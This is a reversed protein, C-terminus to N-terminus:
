EADFRFYFHTDDEKVKKLGLRTILRMSPLNQKFCRSRIYKAKLVDKVYDKLASASEYAYGKGQYEKFFRFGIELGGFYDFNYLVLEGAMKGDVRVALSYEEKREKLLKQFAIFKEPTPAGKIDERYDYGWYRNLADDTYLRFYDQGDSKEIENIVLRETLINVPTIIRDFLTKVTIINKEKIEVPHYQLKSIRLGEDGCDEERNVFEADGAFAKVFESAMVPYVGDYGKLAKEVHVILADGVAEGVSLAVVKGNIKIMGGSQGLEDAHAIFDFVKKEEEKATWSSFVYSEEYEKLFKAIDNLDSKEIKKFVYDPYLKKFKNVHNRQGGLKKGSYTRFQESTYIYDSWDRINYVSIDYYRERFFPVHANDICCFVLPQHNEACYKEIEGLAGEIDEGIPFYFANEYDPCTEKMILTGNYFAYDIIFDDRWMYKTGVSIDCFSIESKGMYDKIIQVNAGLPEFKIM